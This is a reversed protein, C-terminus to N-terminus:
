VICRTMQKVLGSTDLIHDPTNGKLIEDLLRDHDENVKSVERVM